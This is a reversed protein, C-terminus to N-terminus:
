TTTPAASRPTIVEDLLFIDTLLARVHISANLNDVLQSSIAPQAMTLRFAAGANDADRELVALFDTYHPNSDLGEDALVATFGDALSGIARESRNLFERLQAGTKSAEHTSLGQAAYALM